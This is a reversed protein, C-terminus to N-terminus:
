GIRTRSRAPKLCSSHGFGAQRSSYSWVQVISRHGPVRYYAAVHSGAALPSGEDLLRGSRHNRFLRTECTVRM